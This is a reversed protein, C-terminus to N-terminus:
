LRIDPYISDMPTHNRLLLIRRHQCRAQKRVKQSSQIPTRDEMIFTWKVVQNRLWSEEMKVEKAQSSVLQHM